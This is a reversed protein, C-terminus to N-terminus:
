SDTMSSSVADTMPSNRSRSPRKSGWSCAIWMASIAISISDTKTLDSSHLSTMASFKQAMPIIVGCYATKEANAQNNFTSHDKRPVLVDPIGYVGAITIADQLTEEFPQLESISLNTRVFSLPVDTVGIPRQGEGLGYSKDLYDEIERKEKPEM